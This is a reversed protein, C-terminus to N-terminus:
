FKIGLVDSEYPIVGVLYGKLALYVFRMVILGVVINYVCKRTYVRDFLSLYLIWSTAYLNYVVRNATEFISGLLVFGLCLVLNTRVWMLKESNKLKFLFTLVFMGGYLVLDAKHSTYTTQGLYKQYKDSVTLIIGGWSSRFFMFALIVFAVIGIYVFKSNFKKCAFYMVPVILAIISSSHFSQAFVVLLFYPILRRELLFVTAYLLAFISVAQRLGSLTFTYMFFLYFLFIFYATSNDRSKETTLVVFSVLIFHHVGLFFHIDDTVRACVYNLVLYGPENRSEGFYTLINPQLVANAFESIGYGALDNGINISRLAAFMTPFGIAMLLYFLKTKKETKKSKRYLTFSWFALLFVCLYLVM